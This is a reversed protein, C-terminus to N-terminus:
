WQIKFRNNAIIDIITGHSGSLESRARGEVRGGFKYCQKTKVKVRSVHRDIILKEKEENM